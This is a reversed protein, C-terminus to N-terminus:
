PPRCCSAAPHGLSDSATTGASGAPELGPPWGVFAGGTLFADQESVHTPSDGQTGPARATVSNRFFRGQDVLGM